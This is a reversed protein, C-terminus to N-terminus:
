KLWSSLSTQQMRRIGEEMKKIANEVRDLSFDHREVLIEVVKEKNISGRRIDEESVEKVPPNKFFEIVEGIYEEFRHSYKEEVYKKLNEWNEFKKVLKLATKPGIGRVGENFDSGCLVGVFILKERTLSNSDLVEKLFIEEPHILTYENRNPLKRKGSISLNRLLIPSGFLLSDYDQSATAYVVGKKALYSAQAEGESPAQVFAVGMASLLEKTEEVKEKTLKLIGQAYKRVEIELDKAKELLVEYEEKKALRKEREKEKFSPARGDFVYIPTIGNEILNVTRYFVGSLHSTINGNLDKLPTGDPQRISALFQYLANFADIAIKKGRFYSLSREHKPIIPSLDVGM